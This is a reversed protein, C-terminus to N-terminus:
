QAQNAPEQIPGAWEGNRDALTMIQPLFKVVQVCGFLNRYFYFGAKTPPTRQWKLARPMDNWANIAKEKGGANRPYAPGRADCSSCEVWIMAERYNELDSESVGFDMEISGCAPCVKLQEQM